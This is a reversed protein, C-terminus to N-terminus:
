NVVTLFDIHLNLFIIHISFECVQDLVKFFVPIKFNFIIDNKDNRRHTYAAILLMQSQRVISMNYPLHTISAACVETCLRQFNLESLFLTFYMPVTHISVYIMMIIIHFLQPSRM